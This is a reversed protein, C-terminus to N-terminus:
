RNIRDIDAPSIAAFISGIVPGDILSRTSQDFTWVRCTWGIVAIIKNQHFATLCGTAADDVAKVTHFKYLGDIASIGTDVVDEILNFAIFIM